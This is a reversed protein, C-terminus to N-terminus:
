GIVKFMVMASEGNRYYNSIVYAKKYGLKLYLNQAASNSVRVELRLIICGLHKLREEANLMLLRGIGRRRFNEDVAISLIHGLYNYRVTSIIYGVVLNDLEAVLFTDPSSLMLFRLLRKSYPELFSRAEIDYIRPIDTELARRVILDNLSMSSAEM